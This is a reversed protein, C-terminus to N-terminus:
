RRLPAQAARIAAVARSIVQADMNQPRRRIFDLLASGHLATVRSLDIRPKSMRASPFVLIADVWLEIGSAELRRRVEIAESRAVRLDPDFFSGKRALRGDKPFVRGTFGNTEIVFVGTPGVVVHDIYGDRTPLGHIIQYDFALRKLLDGVAPEGGKGKGRLLSGLLGIGPLNPRDDGSRRADGM